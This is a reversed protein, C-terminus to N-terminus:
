IVQRIEMEDGIHVVGAFYQQCQETQFLNVTVVLNAPLQERLDKNLMVAIDEFLALVDIQIKYNNNDLIIEYNDKGILNNLKNRLWQMTYPVKNNIKTLINFRRAEIDTIEDKINYIKEYRDLGYSESTKVIIENFIKEIANNLKDVEKDEVGFLQKFETIDQMFEPLYEILKM